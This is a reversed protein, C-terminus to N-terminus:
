LEQLKINTNTNTNTHKMLPEEHTKLFFTSCRTVASSIAETQNIKDARTNHKAIGTLRHVSISLSNTKRIHNNTETNSTLKIIRNKANTHNQCKSIAKLAVLQWKFVNSWYRYGYKNSHSYSHSYIRYIRYVRYFINYVQFIFFNFVIM